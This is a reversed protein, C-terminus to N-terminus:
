KICFFEWRTFIILLLQLGHFNPWIVGAYRLYYRPGIAHVELKVFVKPAQM